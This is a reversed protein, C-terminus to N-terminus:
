YDLDVDVKSYKFQDATYIAVREEMHRYTSNVSGKGIRFDDAIDFVKCGSKGEKLRVGRGISQRIRINSKTSIAFIINELSPINTGTSFLSSTAIIISSEETEVIKRIYEREDADVKGHIFYVNRGEPLIAKIKEHIIQGHAVFNFLILSNGKSAVALNAIFKNRKECTVLYKIEEKYDMGKFAKRIYEPHKLLLIKISLQASQGNDMMQKTTVIRHIPGILGTLTLENINTGDLTGSVGTRFETNGFAEIVKSTIASKMLHTEDCLLVDVSDTIRKFLNPENKMMSALSQWTSIIVPKDTVRDQGAYIGHVNDEVSWGNHSSYDEFDGIMQDVLNVTPVILLIKRGKTLHYRIVSNLILSKGGGTAVLAISRKNSLIKHVADFQYERIDMPKGRGYLDLSLMFEKVQDLSINVNNNLSEHISIAYKRSIAFKEVVDVLGKYISKTKLNYLRIRGDWIGKKFAPQFKAGPVMFTFYDCLEQEVGHDSCFVKVFSENHPRVEIM